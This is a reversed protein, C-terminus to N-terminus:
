PSPIFALLEKLNMKKPKPRFEEVKKSSIRESINKSFPESSIIKKSKVDASTQKSDNQTQNSNTSFTDNLLLLNQITKFDSVDGNPSILKRKSKQREMSTSVQAKRTKILSMLNDDSPHCTNICLNNLDHPSIQSSSIPFSPSYKIDFCNDSTKNLRIKLKPRNDASLGLRKYDLKLLHEDSFIQEDNILDKNEKKDTPVFRITNMEDLENKENNSNSQEEAGLKSVLNGWVTRPSMVLSPPYTSTDFEPTIACIFSISEGEEAHQTSLETTNWFLFNIIFECNFNKKNM